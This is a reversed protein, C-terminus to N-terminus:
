NTKENKCRWEAFWRSDTSFEGDYFDYCLMLREGVYLKMVSNVIM